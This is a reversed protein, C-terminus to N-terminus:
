IPDPIENGVFALPVNQQGDGPYLVASTTSRDPPIADEATDFDFVSVWAGATDRETGIGIRRLRPDLFRLRRFGSAMSAALAAVPEGPAVIGRKAATRGEASFGPLAADEDQLEDPSKPLRSANRALYGAHATCGRSLGRDLAVPALGVAGRLANIRALV